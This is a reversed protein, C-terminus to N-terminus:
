PLWYRKLVARAEEAGKWGEVYSEKGELLKYTNFFNEIEV